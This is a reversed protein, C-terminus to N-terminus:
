EDIYAIVFIDEALLLAVAEAAPAGPMGIHEYVEGTLPHRILAGQYCILADQIHLRRAIPLTAGFMRGTALTVHIGCRHAADIARVVEPMIVLDPGFVTGDLDLALLQYPVSGEM